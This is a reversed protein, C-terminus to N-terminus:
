SPKCVKNQKEADEQAAKKEGIQNLKQLVSVLRVDVQDINSSDLLSLKTNVAAM